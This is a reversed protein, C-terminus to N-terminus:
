NCSISPGVDIRPDVNVGDVKWIVTDKAGGKVFSTVNIVDFYNRKGSYDQNSWKMNITCCSPNSSSNTAFILISSGQIKSITSVNGGGCKPNPYKIPPPTPGAPISPSPVATNSAWTARSGDRGNTNFPTSAYLVLNRDDQMILYYDQKEPEYKGNKKGDVKWLEKGQNDEYIGLMGSTNLRLYWKGPYASRQSRWLLGKATEGFKTDYIALEGNFHIVAVYKGNKSYMCQDSVLEAQDRGPTAHIYEQGIRTCAYAQNCLGTILIALVFFFLAIKMKPRKM